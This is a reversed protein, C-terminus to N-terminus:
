KRTADNARRKLEAEYIRCRLETSSLGHYQRSLFFPKIGRATEMDDGTWHKDKHDEGLFRIDYKTSGLFKILDEENEYPVIEDVYKVARLQNYREFVSQIPQNKNTVGSHPCCNLGVILYDCNKKAEELATIHGSHLLDAAMPFIGVKM